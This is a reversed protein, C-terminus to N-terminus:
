VIYHLVISDILICSSILYICIGPAIALSYEESSLIHHLMSTSGVSSSSNSSGSGSGSSSSSSSGSSSNSM